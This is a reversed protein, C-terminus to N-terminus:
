EECIYKEKLLEKFFPIFEDNDIESKKVMLIVQKNVTNIFIYDKTEIVKVILKWDYPPITPDESEYRHVLGSEGISVVMPELDEFQTKKIRSEILTRALFFHYLIGFVGLLIFLINGILGDTPKIAETAKSKIIVDVISFIGFGIAFLGLILSTYSKLDRVMFMNANYLDEKKLSQTITIRKETTEEVVTSEVSDVIETTDQVETVEEKKVENELM